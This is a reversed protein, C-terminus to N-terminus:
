NQIDSAVKEEGSHHLYWHEQELVEIKADGGAFDVSGLEALIGRAGMGYTSVPYYVLIISINGCIFLAKFKM